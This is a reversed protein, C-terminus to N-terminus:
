CFPAKQYMTSGVISRVYVRAMIRNEFQPQSKRISSCKESTDSPCDSMYECQCTYEVEIYSDIGAPCPSDFFQGDAKLSCLDKGNCSFSFGYLEDSICETTDTSPCQENGLSRHGYFASHIVITLPSTCEIEM